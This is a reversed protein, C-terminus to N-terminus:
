LNMGIKALWLGLIIMVVGILVKIMKRTNKRLNQLRNIDLGWAAAFLIIILPLVFIFNYLLLYLHAQTKLGGQSMLSLIALYVQGTCPLEVLSVIVGAILVAPITGKEIYKIFLSKTKEPIVLLQKTQPLLGEKISIFGGIITLGGFIFMFPNSIKLFFNHAMLSLIGIGAAYYTAFVAGIYFLGVTIIRKKNAKLILLVSLLFILVAIACPNVSDIVATSIILGLSINKATDNKPKTDAPNEISCFDESDIASCSGLDPNDTSHNGKAWDELFKHCDLKLDEKAAIKENIKSELKKEIEDAGSLYDNGIFILPVKPNGTLGYTEIFKFFLQRCEEKEKVDHELFDIKDKYKEKITEIFPKIGACRPCDYAYFYLVRIKQTQALSLANANAAKLDNTPFLIVASFLTILFLKLVKKFM